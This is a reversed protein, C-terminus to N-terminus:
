AGSVNKGQQDSRHGGAAKQELGELGDPASEFVYPNFFQRKWLAGKDIESLFTEESV